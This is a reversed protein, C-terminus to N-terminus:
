LDLDGARSVCQTWLNKGNVQTPDKVEGPMSGLYFPGVARLTEESLCPCLPTFFIAWTEFHCFTTKFGPGRMHGGRRWLELLIDLHSIIFLYTNKIVFVLDCVPM